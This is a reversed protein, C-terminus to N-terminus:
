KVKRKNYAMAISPDDAGLRAQYISHFRSKDGDCEEIVDRLFKTVQAGESGFPDPKGEAVQIDRLDCFNGMIDYSCSNSDSIVALCDEATKPTDEEENAISYLKQQALEKKLKSIEADRARIEKNALEAIEIDTQEQQQQQQELKEEAM